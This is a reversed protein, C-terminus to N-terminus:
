ERRPGNRGSLDFDSGPDQPTEGSGCEQRGAARLKRAHRHHDANVFLDADTLLEPGDGADNFDGAGDAQKNRRGRSQAPKQEGDGHCAGHDGMEEDDAAARNRGKHQHDDGARDGPQM